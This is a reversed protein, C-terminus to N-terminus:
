RKMKLYKEALEGYNKLTHEILELDEDTTNRVHKCPVGLVVTNPPIKHDPPVLAGAGVIAYEGIEVGHLITANMGILVNNKVLCGQMVCGHGIIVGDGIEVDSEDTHIVASDQINSGKGITIKGRDGRIVTNFWVSSGEGISVDGILCATEAVFANKSISPKKDQFKYLM